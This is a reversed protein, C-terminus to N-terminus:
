TIGGYRTVSKSLTHPKPRPLLSTASPVSSVVVKFLNVWRLPAIGVTCVPGSRERMIVSAKFLCNITETVANDCSDGVSGVSAHLQAYALRQTYNM